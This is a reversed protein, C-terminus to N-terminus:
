SFSQRVLEMSCLEESFRTIVESILFNAENPAVLVEMILDVIFRCKERDQALHIWDVSERRNLTGKLIIARDVGIVEMCDRKNVKKGATGRYAKRTERLLVM